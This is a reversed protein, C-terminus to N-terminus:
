EDWKALWMDNFQKRPLYGYLFAVEPDELSQPYNAMAFSYHGTWEKKGNNEIEWLNNRCHHFTTVLKM